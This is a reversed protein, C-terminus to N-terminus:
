DNKRVMVILAVIGVIVAPILRALVFGYRDLGFAEIICGWILGSICSIIWGKVYRNM